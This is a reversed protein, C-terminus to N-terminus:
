DHESEGMRKVWEALTLPLLGWLALTIVAAKFKTYAGTSHIKCIIDPTAGNCRNRGEKNTLM